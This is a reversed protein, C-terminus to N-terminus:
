TVTKEDTECIPRTDLLLSLAAFFEEEKHEIPTVVEGSYGDQDARIYGYGDLSTSFGVKM